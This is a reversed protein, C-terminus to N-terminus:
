RSSPPLAAIRRQLWAAEAFLLVAVAIVAGGIAYTGDALLVIGGVVSAVGALAFCSAALRLM